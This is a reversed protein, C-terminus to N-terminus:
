NSSSASLYDPRGMVMGGLGLDILCGSCISVVRRCCGGDERAWRGGGQSATVGGRGPESRCGRARREGVTELGDEGTGAGM